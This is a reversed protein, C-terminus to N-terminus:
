AALTVAPAPKGSRIEEHLPSFSQDTQTLVYRFIRALRLTMAGALTPDQHVLAAITNL